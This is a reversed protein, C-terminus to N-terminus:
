IKEYLVIGEKEIAHLLDPSLPQELDVIDFDLLTSTEEKVDLIFNTVQGGAIALDIDSTRTHTGRARSGFLIVRSQGHKQALARIEDVVSTSIGTNM